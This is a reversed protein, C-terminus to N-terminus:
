PLAKKEVLKWNGKGDVRLTFRVRVSPCCNPDNPGYEKGELTLSDRTHGVMREVYRVPSEFEIAPSSRLPDVVYSDGSRVLVLAVNAGSTGTGGACGIDGSWVVAYQADERDERTRYPVLEAVQAPEVRVDPCSIANAYAAASRAVQRAIEGAPPVDQALASATVLMLFLAGFCPFRFDAM